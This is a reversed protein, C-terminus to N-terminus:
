PREGKQERRATPGAGRADEIASILGLWGSFARDVRGDGEREYLRGRIPQAEFQVELELRRPEGATSMREFTAAGPAGWL